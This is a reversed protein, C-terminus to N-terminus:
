FMTVDDKLDMVDKLPYSRASALIDMRSRAQM